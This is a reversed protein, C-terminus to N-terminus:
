KVLIRSVSNGKETKISLVYIGATGCHELEVLNGQFSKAAVVKGSMDCMMVEGRQVNANLVIELQQDSLHRIIPKLEDPAVASEVGLYNTYIYKLGNYADIKGYGSREPSGETLEDTMATASIIELVQDRSLDSKAELWLAIVGSAFPCAM